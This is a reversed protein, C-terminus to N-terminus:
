PRKKIVTGNHTLELDWYTEGCDFEVFTDRPVRPYRGDAGPRWHVILEQIDTPAVTDRISLETKRPRCRNQEAVRQLDAPLDEYRILLEAEAVEGNAHLDLELTSADSDPSRATAARSFKLVAELQREADRERDLRLDQLCAVVRLQRVVEGLTAWQASNVSEPSVPQEDGTTTKPRKFFGPCLPIELRAVRSPMGQLSSKLEAVEEKLRRVLEADARRNELEGEVGELRHRQDDISSRLQIVAGILLTAATAFTVM